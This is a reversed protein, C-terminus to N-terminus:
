NYLVKYTYHKTVNDSEDYIHPTSATFEGLYEDGENYVYTHSHDFISNVGNLTNIVLCRFTMGGYNGISRVELTNTGQGVFSAEDGTENPVDVWQNNDIMDIPRMQWKYILNESFLEIPRDEMEKPRTVSASITLKAVGNSLYKTRQDEAAITAVIPPEPPLTVKCIHSVTEDKTKRNLSAVPNVRYWAPIDEIKTADINLSSKNNSLMTSNEFNDYSREWKYTIAPKYNDEQLEISLDTNENKNVVLGNNLDKIIAVDRPGPILCNMTQGYNVSKLPKKNEGLSITNYARAYYTGTIEKQSSSPEVTYTSFKTFLKTKTPFPAVYEVNDTTFYREPFNRSPIEADPYEENASLAVDDIVTGFQQDEIINGNEDKPNCLQAVTEGEPIFYWEYDFNEGDPAVAQAYLTITDNVLSVVKVGDIINNDAAILADDKKKQPNVTINTGPSRFSPTTPAPIGEGNFVSNIVAKEFEDDQIPSTEITAEQTSLAPRIIIEKDLTNLSYVTKNTSDIRVFRVSFKVNGPKSTIVKNLPWAFRIKNSESELDRMEVHTAGHTGDPTIWQIYIQTNNLDMYDFYRDVVFVITEALQDNQVSACKSFNSPISISRDNLNIIFPEEDLPLMVYKYASIAFLDAMHSYYEALSSFSTKNTNEDIYGKEKLVNFAETFIDYYEQFNSDNINVIM